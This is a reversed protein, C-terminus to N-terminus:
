SGEQKWIDELWKLIQIAQLSLSCPTTPDLIPLSYSIAPSPLRDCFDIVIASETFM